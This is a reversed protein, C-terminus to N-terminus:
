PVILIVALLFVLLGTVGFAAAAFSAAVLGLLVAGVAAAQRAPPLAALRAEVTAPDRRRSLGAILAAAVRRASRGLSAALHRRDAPM